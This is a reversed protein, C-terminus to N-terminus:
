ALQCNSTYGLLHGAGHLTCLAAPQLRAGEELRRRVRRSQRGAQRCCSAEGSCMRADAGWMRAGAGRRPGAQVGGIATVV